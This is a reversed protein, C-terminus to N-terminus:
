PYLTGSSKDDNGGTSPTVTSASIYSSHEIMLSDRPEGTPRVDDVGSLESRARSYSWQTTTCLSFRERIVKETMDPRLLMAVNNALTIEDFAIAFEDQQTVFAAGYREHNDHRRVGTGFIDYLHVMAEFESRVAEGLPIFLNSPAVPSLTQWRTTQVDSGELATYRDERTGWIEAYRVRKTTGSGPKKVLITIAVDKLIDFVNGNAQGDPSRGRKRTDGYLNLIYVDDFTDMLSSRMDRTLPGDLYGSNTIMAVIGYGTQEIRWQAFRMFKIYDDSLAQIQTEESRVTTKYSEMLQEIWSGKNQSSKSYPPNGLVVMVPYDQKAQSAANAEDTIFQAFLNKGAYDDAEELTNTLYVRLREDSTFMYGTKALQMSLKMHAVAYPAMLLEFGIIRPLLHERVYGIWMGKNGAFSSHIRDVVGHLFTATGTAPDLIQVRHVETADGPQQKKSRRERPVWPVKTSDALGSPLKFDTKLLEDVSRVIYSVVPEPTYYAGRADRIEPDYEKLFTEYFHFVPDQRRTRKGFDAFIHNTETRSLLNALDDVAWVIRDDLEPGAIHSFLRRLFPNTRPLDYAAHERTFSSGSDMSFRAAFLGYCITQAYMDAFQTGTLEHLLTTRFGDLQQHLTGSTPEDDFASEIADRILQAYRAMRIALESPTGVTPANESTFAELLARVRAVEQEDSTIVGRANVNGIRAKARLEGGVYWRFELYDTLVINGLAARYRLLQEDGEIDDLPKGVDKAEVYGVPVNSRTLIFDPAGCKIRRPENTAVIGPIIGELMIKLSPRHTHETADGRSLAAEIQRLYERFAAIM